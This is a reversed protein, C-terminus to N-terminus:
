DMVERFYEVYAGAPFDLITGDRLEATIEQHPGGSWVCIHEIEGWFTSGDMWAQVWDGEELDQARKRGESVLHM